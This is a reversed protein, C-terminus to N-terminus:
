MFFSTVWTLVFVVGFVTLRMVTRKLSNESRDLFVFYLSVWLIIGAALSYFLFIAVNGEIAGVFDLMAPLTSLACALCWISCLIFYWPWRGQKVGHFFSHVLAVSVALTQLMKAVYFMVVMITKGNGMEALLFGEIITTCIMAIFLVIVIQRRKKLENTEMSMLRVREQNHEDELDDQLLITKVEISERDVIYYLEGDHVSTSMYPDDRWGKACKQICLMIFFGIGVLIPYPQAVNPLIRFLLHGLLAAAIISYLYEMRRGMTDSEDLRQKAYKYLIFCIVACPIFVVPLFGKQTADFFVTTNTSNM